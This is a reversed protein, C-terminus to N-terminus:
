KNPNLLNYYSDFTELDKDKNLTDTGRSNDMGKVPTSTVFENVTVLTLYPILSKHEGIVELNPRSEFLTAARTNGIGINRLLTDYEDADFTTLHYVTYKDVVKKSLLTDIDSLKFSQNNYKEILIKLTDSIYLRFDGIVLEKKNATTLETTDKNALSDLKSALEDKLAKTLPLLYLGVESTSLQYWDNVKNLSVPKAIEKNIVPYVKSNTQFGDLSILVQPITDLTDEKQKGNITMVYIGDVPKKFEVDETLHNYVPMDGISIYNCIVKDKLFDNAIKDSAARYYDNFEVTPNWGLRILDNGTEIDWKNQAYENLFKTSLKAVETVWENKKFTTKLGSCSGKYDNFWKIAFTNNSKPSNQLLTEIETYNLMPAFVSRFNPDQLLDIRDEAAKVTHDIITSELLSNSETCLIDYAKKACYLPDFSKRIYDNAAASYLTVDAPAVKSSEDLKGKIPDYERIRRRFFDLLEVDDNSKEVIALTFQIADILKFDYCLQIIKEKEHRALKRFIQLFFSDGKIVIPYTFLKPHADMVPLTENSMEIVLKRKKTYNNILWYFFQNTFEKLKVKFQVSKQGYLESDKIFKLYKPHATAYKYIAPSLRACSQIDEVSTIGQFEKMDLFEAKYKKCLKKALESKDSTPLGILLIMRYFKFRNMNYYMDQEPFITPTPHKKIQDAIGFNYDKMPDLKSENVSGTYEIDFDDDIDDKLFEKLQKNYLDTVDMGYIQISFDDCNIRRDKDVSNYKYWADELEDQTKYDDFLLPYGDDIYGQALKRKQEPTFGYEEKIVSHPYYIDKFPSLTTNKKDNKDVSKVAITINSNPSYENDFKKIYKDASTEIRTTKLKDLDATDLDRVGGYEYDLTDRTINRKLFKAKNKYYLEENEMGFLRMAEDDAEYWNNPPMSKFKYWDAELDKEYKYYDKIIAGGNAAVWREIEKYKFERDQDQFYREANIIGM